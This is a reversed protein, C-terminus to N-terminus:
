YVSGGPQTSSLVGNVASINYNTTANSYGAWNSLSFSGTGSLRQVGVNRFTLPTKPKCVEPFGVTKLFYASGVGVRTANGNEVLLATEVDVGIGRTMPTWGDNVIRAMFTVLRGMRDRSDLHMDTILNGMGPLALFDRGISVSRDYPNALAQPSTISGNLANFVYQSMVALGASTGGIPINKNALGQIAAQLPTDKWDQWYNAQDGGAIWLAEANRVRELVFPDNAAARNPIILTEVSTVGGGFDFIYPNYADTGRARIVVFNGGGSKQIMWRFADDVDTGGGMLVLTPQAPQPRVVNAPDGVVYHEYQKASQASASACLSLVFLLLAPLARM